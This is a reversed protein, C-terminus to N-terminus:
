LKTQENKKSNGGARLSHPSVRKGQVTMFQAAIRTIQSENSAPFNPLAVEILWKGLEGGTGPWDLYEVAPQPLEARLAADMEETQGPLEERMTKIKEAPMGETAPDPFPNEGSWIRPDLDPQEEVPLSSVRAAVPM